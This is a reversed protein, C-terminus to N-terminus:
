AHANMNMTWSTISVKQGATVSTNDVIMDTGSTGATGQMHCTAGGSAYVRYHGITGANNASLDDIPTNSFAKSGASAAAMWDSALTMEAILTGSDAAACNAPPSGSRIRIVAATGITAEIADLMANVVAVSLQVVM